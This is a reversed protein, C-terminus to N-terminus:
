SIQQLDEKTLLKEVDKIRKAKDVVIYTKVDRFIEIILKLIEQRVAKNNYCFMTDPFAVSLKYVSCFNHLKLLSKKIYYLNKHVLDASTYVSNSFLCAFLGSGNRSLVLCRGLLFEAAKDQIYKNYEAYTDPYRSKVNWSRKEGIPRKPEVSLAIVDATFDTINGSVVTIPM